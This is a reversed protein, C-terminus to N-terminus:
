RGTSAAYRAEDVVLRWYGQPPRTARFHGFDFTLIPLRRREALAMVSADALGLDLDAYRHDIEIARRLIGPSLYAIEHEGADLASLFRRAADGGVRARALQDVEVIVPEPVVLNRGIRTLLEVALAHAQDRRNVAAV